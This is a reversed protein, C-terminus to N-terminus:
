REFARAGEEVSSRSLPVSIADSLLKASCQVVTSCKREACTDRDPRWFFASDFFCRRAFHVFVPFANQAVVVNISASEGNEANQMRGRLSGPSLSENPGARREIADRDAPPPSSPGARLGGPRSNANLM